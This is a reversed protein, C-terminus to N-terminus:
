QTQEQLRRLAERGKDILGEHVPMYESSKRPLGAGNVIRRLAEVAAEYAPLTNVAYVILAADAIATDEHGVAEDLFTHTWPLPTAADLLEKARSERTMSM